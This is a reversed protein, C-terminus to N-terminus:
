WPARTLNLRAYLRDGGEQHLIGVAALEGAFAAQAPDHRWRVGIQDEVFRRGLFDDNDANATRCSLRLPGATLQVFNLIKSIPGNQDAVRASRPSEGTGDINSSLPAVTTLM